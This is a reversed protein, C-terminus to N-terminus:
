PDSSFAFCPAQYQLKCQQSVSKFSVACYHEGCDASASGAMATQLEPVISKASAPHKRPATTSRYKVTRWSQGGDWGRKQIVPQLRAVRAAYVM